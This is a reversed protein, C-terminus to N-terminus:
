VILFYGWPSIFEGCISQPFHKSYNTLPSWWFLFTFFWSICEWSNTHLIMKKKRLPLMYFYKSVNTSWVEYHLTPISLSNEDFMIFYMSNLKGKKKNYILTIIEYEKLTSDAIVFLYNLATNAAMNSIVLVCVRWKSM